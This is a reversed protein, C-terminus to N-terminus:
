SVKSYKNENKDLFGLRQKRLFPKERIVDKTGTETENRKIQAESIHNDESSSGKKQGRCKSNRMNKGRINGRYRIFFVDWIKRRRLSKAHWNEKKNNRIHTKLISFLKWKNLKKNLMRKIEVKSGKEKVM